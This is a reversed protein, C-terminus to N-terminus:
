ANAPKVWLVEVKEKKRGGGAVHSRMKKMHKAWRAPDLLRRYLANDYGCLVVRAKCAGLQEILGTHFATDDGDVEVAYGGGVRVAQVYPPDAVVVAGPRDFERIVELADRCLITVGRLRASVKPLLARATEYSSIAEPKGRRLRSGPTYADEMLGGRSCRNLLFYRAAGEAPTLRAPAAAQQQPTGGRDLAAYCPAFAAVLAAESAFTEPLLALVGGVDDRVTLLFNILDPDLDSVVEVASRPKALLISGGGVFPEVYRTHSGALALIRRAFDSKHNNKGGFYKLPSPTFDPHKHTIGEPFPLVSGGGGQGNVVTAPPPTSREVVTEVTAPPPEPVTFVKPTFGEVRGPVYKMVKGDRAEVLPAGPPPTKVYRPTAHGEVAIPFGAAWAPVASMVEALRRLGWEARAADVECVVEDHAHLVVPLGGRECAVLAGALLDRCVAQCVNEALKGGYTGEERGHGGKGPKAGRKAGRAEPSDYILAPRLKGFKARVEVRANRYTLGRGSPLTILLSGGERAFACRGAQGAWGDRVALLAAAEAAKWLGGVRGYGEPHRAGAIASYSDRYAAIVQQATLGAAALDVGNAECVGAFKEAGMGYGCGLVAVKGVARDAKDAKTVPRGFIRTALECYVDRGERFASLLGAEGALWALGRAEVANYDAVLLVKGPAATFCPRVLASLGDAFSVGGPLALRFAESDGAAEILSALDGLASHPKPLNQPQAERGTWRGTHAGHFVLQDRLRGDSDALALAKKLKATTVRGVAQRAVLVARVDDPLSKRRLLNAQVAKTLQSKGTATRPLEIGRSELWAGLRAVRTLDAPRVAGATAREAEAALRDTDVKELALVARALDRDLHVGRANIARDAALLEPETNSRALEPYARALLLADGLNYTVMAALDAGKLEHFAGGRTPRGYRQILRKGGPDKALGLLWAGVGDLKGPLGGARALPLSDVWASPEPLGQGRWVLADFGWANHACLPTGRAIAEALPAPLEPGTYTEFPMPSHGEPWAFAPIEKALPAWIVAVGDVLAVCTLIRTSPHNAYRRGGLDRLDACSRTELDLIAPATREVAPTPSNVVTPTSRSRTAAGSVTPAIGDVATRHVAPGGNHVALAALLAPKNAKIAQRDVDTLRSAPAVGLRGDPEATLTFGRSLLDTLLSASM